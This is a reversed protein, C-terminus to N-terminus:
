EIIGEWCNLPDSFVSYVAELSEHNLLQYIFSLRDSALQSNDLGPFPLKDYLIITQSLKQSVNEFLAKAAVRKDAVTRVQPDKWGEEIHPLIITVRPNVLIESNNKYASLDVAIKEQWINKGKNELPPSFQPFLRFLTGLRVNDVVSGMFWSIEKGRIRFHVTETSFLKLGRSLGSLLYVTKGSGPGGIIVYLCDNRSSYLGCAHFNYIRHRKELLFLAYRYLIGQNGWFSYRLDSAEKEWKLFPGQFLLSDESFTWFAKGRLHDRVTIFGDLQGSLAIKEVDRFDTLLSKVELPLPFYPLLSAKNSHIGIRAELIKLAIKFM